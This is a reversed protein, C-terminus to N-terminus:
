GLSCEGSTQCMGGPVGQIYLSILFTKWYGISCQHNAPLIKLSRVCYPSYQSTNDVILFDPSQLYNLSLVCQIWYTEYGVHCARVYSWGRIHPWPLMVNIWTRPNNSHINDFSPRGLKYVMYHLHIEELMKSSCAAMKLTGWFSGILGVVGCPAFVWFM